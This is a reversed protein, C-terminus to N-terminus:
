SPAVDGGTSDTSELFVVSFCVVTDDRCFYYRVCFYRVSRLRLVFVKSRLVYHSRDKHVDRLRLSFYVPAVNRAYSFNKSLPLWM